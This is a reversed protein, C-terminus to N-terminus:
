PERIVSPVYSRPWPELAADEVGTTDTAVLVEHLTAPYYGPNAPLVTLTYSGVALPLSYVGSANTPATFTYNYTTGLATITASLPLGTDAAYVVGSIHGGPLLRGLHTITAIAARAFDAYYVLDLTSLRDSSQHYHPTHDNWDEIALFAPYGRTLFSWQDSQHVAWQDV